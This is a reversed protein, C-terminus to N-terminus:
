GVGLFERKDRIPPGQVRWARGWYQPFQCYQSQSM